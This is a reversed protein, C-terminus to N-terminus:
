KDALSFRLPQLKFSKVNTGEKIAAIWPPSLQIIRLAEEDLSYEVSKKIEPERINGSEDVLFQLQVTGTVHAKVARAPYQLHSILFNIWNGPEGQFSAEKEDQETTTLVVGEAPEKEQQLVAIDDTLQGEEYYKYNNLRGDEGYFYWAGNPVDNLYEGTSDLSGNAYYYSCKGNRVKGTEDAFSEQCIRPGYMNYYTRVYNMENTQHVQLFYVAKKPKVFNWKQDYTYIRDKVQAYSTHVIICAALLLLTKM